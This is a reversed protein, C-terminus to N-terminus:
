ESASRESLVGEKQFLISFGQQHIRAEARDMFPVFGAPAQDIVVELQDADQECVSMEVM